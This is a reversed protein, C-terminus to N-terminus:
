NIEPERNDHIDCAIYHLGNDQIVYYDMSGHEYLVFDNFEITYDANNGIRGIEVMLDYLDVDPDESSLVCATPTVMIGYEEMLIDIDEPTITKYILM